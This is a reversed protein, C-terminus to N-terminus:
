ITEFGSLYHQFATDFLRDSTYSRAWSSSNARYERLTQEDQLLRVATAALEEAKYDIAVGAKRDHIEPAIAVTRTVITPLGCFAYIKIKGPDGYVTPNDPTFAYPAVAVAYRSITDFLKAEGPIFDHFIFRDVLDLESVLQKLEDWPGSGIIHVKVKPVEKIIMPMADVLLKLGHFHTATGVFVITWRDIEEFPVHRLLHPGFGAPVLIHDYSEPPIDVYRKRAQEIRPTINWVTDSGRVCIKDMLILIIRFIADPGFTLAPTFYDLTYYIVHNVVGMRRLFIGSLTQLSGVGIFIHFERKLSSVASLFLLFNFIYVVFFLPQLYFNNKLNLNPLPFEQTLKGHNYVTCRASKRPANPGITGVVVLTRVREKLYNEIVEMRGTLLQGSVLIDQGSIDPAKM